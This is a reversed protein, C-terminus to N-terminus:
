LISILTEVVKQDIKEGMDRLAKKTEEISLARRYPRNTMLADTIDAIALIRVLLNIEDGKLGDPYGSGDLKEHHHRIVDCLGSLSQVARVIGEGIEPHNRMVVWEQETLPGAKTLIDDTIGIKGIDHLRAADRLIKKDNDNLGFKEAIKIAYGAVRDLHGRSYPDKAEVALALASIIDFYTKEADFNLQDNEIAIATQMAISSLLTADDHTFNVDINRGCIVIVGLVKEHVLLPACVMPFEFCDQKIVSKMAASDLKPVILNEKEEIVSQFISESLKFRTNSDIKLNEGLITRVYLEDKQPDLFLLVGSKGSVADVVTEIILELFSDINQISSIGQGVRSLVTQLTKKALELKKVNAELKTRIENFTKALVAVENDSSQIAQVQGEDLFDGLTNQNEKTIRLLKRLVMNMAFYGLAIGLVVLALTVALSETTMQLAGSDKVQVYIYYLIGLPIVSILIFFINFQSILSSKAFSKMKPAANM